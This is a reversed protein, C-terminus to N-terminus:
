TLFPITLTLICFQLTQPIKHDTHHMVDLPTVGEPLQFSNFDLKYINNPNLTELTRVEIISISSPLLKIKGKTKLIPNTTVPLCSQALMEENVTIYHRGNISYGMSFRDDRHLVQGLIYERKLNEIVIVRGSFVKNCIQVLIVYIGVPILVGRGAGSVSRNCKILKPKNGPLNYFKCSMMNISAGRDYLAEVKINNVRVKYLIVNDSSVKDTTVEKIVVDLWDPDSSTDSLQMGGILQEAEKISYTSEQPRSSLVTKNITVNIKRANKLTQKCYKKTIKARSLNYKEEYKKFKKCMDISHEGDCYYCQMKMSM